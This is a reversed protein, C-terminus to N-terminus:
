TRTTPPPDPAVTPNGSISRPSSRGTARTVYLGAFVASGGAVQWATPVESLLLWAALFAFVPTANSYQASRTPGLERLGRAWILYAIVLAGLSAYAVAGWAPLSLGTWQQTTLDPIGYFLMPITGAAITWAAMPVAGIEAAIPRTGISYVAWCLAAWLVLLDGVVSTGVAVESHSGLVIAGVGIGSLALGAWERWHLREHGLIHSLAATLVPNAALILAVNGARTRAIGEIFGLQYLSNGIIGYAAIRGWLRRPPAPNGLGYAIAVMAVSAITFRVVNFALPEFVALVAKVIIMNVGWILAMLLLLADTRTLRPM